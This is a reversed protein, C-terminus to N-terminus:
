VFVAAIEVAGGERPKPCRESGRDLRPIQRGEGGGLVVLNYDKLAAASPLEDGRKALATVSLDSTLPEAM